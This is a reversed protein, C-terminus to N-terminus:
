RFLIVPKYKNRGGSVVVRWSRLMYNQPIKKELKLMDKRMIQLIEHASKLKLDRGQKSNVVTGGYLGKAPTKESGKGNSKPGNVIPKKDAPVHDAITATVLEDKVSRRRSGSTYV